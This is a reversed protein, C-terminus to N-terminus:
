ARREFPNVDPEEANTRIMECETALASSGDKMIFYEATPCYTYVGKLREIFNKTAKLITEKDYGYKVQFKKMKAVTDRVNSRLPKMGGNKVGKPFLDLYAEVLTDLETRGNQEPTVNTAQTQVSVVLSMATYMGEKTLIYCDELSDSSKQAEEVILLQKRVLPQLAVQKQADNKDRLFESLLERKNLHICLLLFVDDMKLSHKSMIDLVNRDLKICLSTSM